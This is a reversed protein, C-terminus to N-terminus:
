FSWRGRRTQAPERSYHVEDEEGSAGARHYLNYMGVVFNGSRDVRGDNLRTTRQPEPTRIGLDDVQRTDVNPLTILYLSLLQQNWLALSLSYLGLIVYLRRVNSSRRPAPELLPVDTPM